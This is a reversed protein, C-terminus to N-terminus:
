YEYKVMKFLCKMLEDDFLKKYNECSEWSLLMHHFMVFWSM